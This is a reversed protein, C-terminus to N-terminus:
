QSVFNVFFATSAASANTAGAPGQGKQTLDNPKM